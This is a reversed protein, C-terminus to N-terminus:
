LNDKHNLYALDLNASEYRYLMNQSNTLGAKVGVYSVSTSDNAPKYSMM